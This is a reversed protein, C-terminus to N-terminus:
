YREQQEIIFLVLNQVFLYFIRVFITMNENSAKFFNFGSLSNIDNITFKIKNANGFVRNEENKVIKIRAFVFKGEKKIGSARKQLKGKATKTKKIFKRYLAHKIQPLATELKM